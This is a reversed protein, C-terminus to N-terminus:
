RHNIFFSMQPHLFGETSRVGQQQEDRECQRWEGRSQEEISGQKNLGDLETGLLIVAM